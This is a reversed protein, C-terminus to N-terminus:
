DSLHLPAPISVLSEGAKLKLFGSWGREIRRNSKWSRLWTPAALSESPRGPPSCWSTAAKFGAKM